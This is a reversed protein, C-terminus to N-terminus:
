PSVAVSGDQAVTSSVTNSQSNLNLTSQNCNNSAACVQVTTPSNVNIPVAIQQNINTHPALQFGFNQPGIPTNFTMKVPVPNNSQNALNLNVPALQLGTNVGTQQALAPIAVFVSASLIAAIPLFLSLSRTTPIFSKTNVNM